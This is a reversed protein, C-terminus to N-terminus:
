YRLAAAMRSMSMRRWAIERIKSERYRPRFLNKTRVRDFRRLQACLRFASGKRYFVRGEGTVVALEWESPPQPDVDIEQAITIADVGLKALDGERGAQHELLDRGVDPDIEGHIAFKFARAVGAPLIPSYGNIFRLGAWMSTSGPRVIQGVPGPKKEMRYTYEVPPYISLYLRQSDLPASKTLEQSLNYKPVGCNPPICLYTAFFAAVTVCAPMWTRISQNSVFFGSLAWLAAIALFIWTLPFAYEGNTRLISMTIAILAVLGFGIPGPPGDCFSKESDGRGRRHSDEISRRCLARSDFSFVSALSFELSVRGRNAAHLALARALTLSAGLPNAPDFCSRSEGILGAILAVPAVLGCALETATHPMMRTSFDAWKVTWCPLILGPLASPPVLWQWHASAAEVGRASGHVYDFIALWAPASLAFGLAVGCLM